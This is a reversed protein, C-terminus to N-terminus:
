FVGRVSKYIKEGALARCGTYGTYRSFEWKQLDERRGSSKLWSDEQLGSSTLTACQGAIEKINTQQCCISIWIFILQTPRDFLTPSSKSWNMRSDPPLPPPFSSFRSFMAQSSASFVPCKASVKTLYKPADFLLLFWMDGPEYFWFFNCYTYMAIWFAPQIPELVYLVEWSLM